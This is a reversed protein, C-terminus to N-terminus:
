ATGNSNEQQLLQENQPCEVSVIVHIKAGSGQPWAQYLQRLEEQVGVMVATIEEGRRDRCTDTIWRHFSKIGPINM